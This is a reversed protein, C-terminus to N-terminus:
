TPSGSDTGLRKVVVRLGIDNVDPVVTRLRLHLIDNNIVDANITLMGHPYGEYLKLKVNKIPKAQLLVGDKYPVIQDDDDQM